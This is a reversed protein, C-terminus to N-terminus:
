WERWVVVVVGGGEGARGQAGDAARDRATDDVSVGHDIKRVFFVYAGIDVHVDRQEVAVLDDFDLGCAFGSREFATFEVGQEVEGGVCEGGQLGELDLGDSM